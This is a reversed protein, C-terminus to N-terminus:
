ECRGIKYDVDPAIFLPQYRHRDDIYLNSKNDRSVTITLFVQLMQFLFWFFLKTELSEEKVFLFCPLNKKNNLIFLESM